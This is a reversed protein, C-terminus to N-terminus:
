WLSNLAPSSSGSGARRQRGRDARGHRFARRRVRDRSDDRSLNPCSNSEYHLSLACLHKAGFRHRGHLSRQDFLRHVSVDIGVGLQHLRRMARSNPM